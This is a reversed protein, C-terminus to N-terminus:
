APIRTRGLMEGIRGAVADFQEAPVPSSFYYGQAHHCHMGRLLDMQAATEVGEAVVKMGLGRAMAVVAEILARDSGDDSMDRVFSKDVKLTDVPFRKLYSLSSYGTGFDDLYIRFGLGRVAVLWTIAQDVDALLIGETVELALRGPDIGHRHIAAALAPPPLGHPIQRGSVNISLYYDRGEDRWRVLQQCAVDLVWLGIEDILGIEEALPIFADPPVLGRRPHRWRILAEAGALRNGALDVIPQYYLQFEQNRAAQRLDNELQRRQEAAETMAAVFLAFGDGGAAKARDLALEANRLLRPIDAGDQPSVTIGLSAHIKLPTADIQFPKRLTHLIREAIREIDQGATVGYLIVAYRDGGLRALCDSSKICHGLRSTTGKLVIDGIPLGFGENIHRFNDLDVLMLTFGHRGTAPPEDLLVQLKEELGQRNTVGTLPDTIAQRRAMAEAEMHETVDHVVGQLLDEGIPSLVVNLWRRFGNRHRIELDGALSTNILRSRHALEAIRTPEEWPLQRINLGGRQVDDAPIEMLRAFAPNWSTLAGDPAVIFIGTEANEFIAHYKREEQEMQQRLAREQDLADVLDDALGNIDDALRGIETHAHNRPMALRGGRTAEMRHLGDSIAKIPRVIFMIMVAVVALAILGLQGIMQLAIFRAETHIGQAIVETNADLRIRGIVQDADFPSHVERLLSIEDVGPEPSVGPLSKRALDVADAQIAVARVEKNSLLGQIVEEALKQDKVFCAVRVTSEVTDLLQNLREAAARHQREGTVLITASITFLAALFFSAFLVAASRILISHRWHTRM